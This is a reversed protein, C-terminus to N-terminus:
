VSTRLWRGPGKGLPMVQPAISKPAEEGRWSTVTDCDLPLSGVRQRYDVGVTPKIPMFGLDCSKLSAPRIPTEAEAQGAGGILAASVAAVTMLNHIM